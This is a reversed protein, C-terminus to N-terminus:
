GKREAIWPAITSALWVPCCSLRADPEPLKGRRHWQAVTAARAGIEHAIEAISCLIMPVLWENQRRMTERRHHRNCLLKAPDMTHSIEPDKRKTSADATEFKSNV